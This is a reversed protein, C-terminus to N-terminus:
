SQAAMITMDVDQEGFCSSINPATLRLQLSTTSSSPVSTDLTQYTTSAATYNTPPSTCTLDTANCYSHVYQDTGASSGLTWTCGGGSGDQGKISFDEAVGGNNTVTQADSLDITSKSTGASMTGYTVAGDSVTVSVVAPTSTNLENYDNDITSTIAGLSTSCYGWQWFTMTATGSVPVSSWTKTFITDAAEQPNPTTAKKPTNM